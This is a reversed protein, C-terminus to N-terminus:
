ILKKDPFKTLHAYKLLNKRTIQKLAWAFRVLMLPFILTKGSNYLIELFLMHVRDNFDRSTVYTRLQTRPSFGFSLDSFIFLCHWLWFNCGRQCFSTSCFFFMSWFCSGILLLGAFGIAGKTALMGSSNDVLPWYWTAKFTKLVLWQSINVNKTCKSCFARYYIM